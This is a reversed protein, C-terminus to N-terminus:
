CPKQPAAFLMDVSSVYAIGIWKASRTGLGGLTTTDTVNTLPNIM